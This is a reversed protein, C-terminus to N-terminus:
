PNVNKDGIENAIETEPKTTLPDLQRDCEAKFCPYKEAIASLVKQKFVPYVSRCGTKGKITYFGERYNSESHHRLYNVCLRNLFSEESNLDAFRPVFETNDDRLFARYEKDRQKDNFASIARKRIVDVPLLPINIQINDIQTKLKETKTSVTKKASQLAAIKRPQRLLFDKQFDERSEIEQVREIGYLQMPSGSRYHPNPVEKCPGPLFKAILFDTWGREKKLTSKAIYKGLTKTM